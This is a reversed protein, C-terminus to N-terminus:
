ADGGGGPVALLRALKARALRLRSKVTNVPVGCMHAVERLPVDLVYHLVVAERQPLDLGKLALHMEADSTRDAEAHESADGASLHPRERLVRAVEHRLIAYLWPRFPAGLRFTGLGRWAALFAAQVADEAESSSGLLFTATRCAAPQHRLYLAEFAVRDGAQAAAVVPTEPDQPRAETGRVGRAPIGIRPLDRM